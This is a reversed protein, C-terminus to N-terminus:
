KKKKKKKFEYRARTQIFEGVKHGCMEATVSLPVFEKGNYVRLHAGILESTITSARSWTKVHSHTRIEPLKRLILNNSSINKWATM